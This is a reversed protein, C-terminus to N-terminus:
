CSPGSQKELCNLCVTFIHKHFQTSYRSRGHFGGLGERSICERTGKREGSEVKEEARM